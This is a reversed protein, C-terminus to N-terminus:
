SHRIQSGVNAYADSLGLVLQFVMHENSVAASVNSLQDSLPKIHQIYSSVDPFQEM